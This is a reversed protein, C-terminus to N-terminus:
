LVGELEREAFWKFDVLYWNSGLEYAIQEVTGEKKSNKFKVRSGKRFLPPSFRNNKM